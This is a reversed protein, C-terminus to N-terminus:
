SEGKRRILIWCSWIVIGYITLIYFLNSALFLPAILSPFILILGLVPHRAGWRTSSLWLGLSLCIAGSGRFRLSEFSFKEWPHDSYVFLLYWQATLILSLSRAAIKHLFLGNVRRRFWGRNIWEVKAASNSMGLSMNNQLYEIGGTHDHM